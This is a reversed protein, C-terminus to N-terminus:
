AVAEVGRGWSSWGLRPQRAFLEMYPGECWDEVLDYFAPPKMSHAPQLPWDFWTTPHWPLKPPSGRKALLVFETTVPTTARPAKCWVLLRDQPKFGWSEVVSWAHRLYRNTVWLFLRCGEPHALSAVDLAKIEDLPMGPYPLEGRRGTTPSQAGITDRYAWPPDACIVRYVASGVDAFTM